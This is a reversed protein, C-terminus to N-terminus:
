CRTQSRLWDGTSGAACYRCVHGSHQREQEPNVPNPTEASERQSKGSSHTHHVAVRPKDSCPVHPSIQLSFAGSNADKRLTKQHIVPVRMKVLELLLAWRRPM